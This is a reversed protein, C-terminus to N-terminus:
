KFSRIQALAENGFLLGDEYLKIKIQEMDESELLGIVAIATPHAFKSFSKNAIIFRDKWGLKEAAEHVPLFSKAAKEFDAKEILREREARFNITQDRAFKEPKESLIKLLDLADRASDEYFTKAREPSSKCYEAWVSLELLNRALWAVTGISRQSFAQLLESLNLEVARKLKKLVELQLDHDEQNM